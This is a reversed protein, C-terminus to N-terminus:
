PSLLNFLYMVILINIFHADYLKQFGEPMLRAQTRDMLKAGQGVSVGASLNASYNSKKKVFFFFFFFSKLFYLNLPPRPEQVCLFPHLLSLLPRPRRGAARAGPRGGGRGTRLWQGGCAGPRDEGRGRPAVRAGDGGDGRPSVSHSSTSLATDTNWTGALGGLDGQLPGAGPRHSAGPDPPATM